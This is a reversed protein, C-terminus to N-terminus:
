GCGNLSISVAVQEPGPKIMMMPGYLLVGVVKASTFLVGNITELLARKMVLLLAQAFLILRRLQILTQSLM